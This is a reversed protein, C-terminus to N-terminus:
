QGAVQAYGNAAYQLAQALPIDQGRVSLYAARIEAAKAALQGVGIEDAVTGINGGMDVITMLYDPDTLAEYEKGYMDAGGGVSSARANQARIADLGLRGQEIDLARAGQALREQNQGADIALEAEGLALRRDGQAVEAPVAEARQRTYETDAAMGEREVAASLIDEQFSAAPVAGDRVAAQMEALQAQNVFSPAGLPEGDENMFQVVYGPEGNMETFEVDLNGNSNYTRYYSRIADEGGPTGFGAYARTLLADGLRNHLANFETLAETAADDDILGAATARALAATYEGLKSEAEGILSDDPLAGSQAQQTLKEVEDRATYITQLADRNQKGEMLGYGIEFGRLFNEASM